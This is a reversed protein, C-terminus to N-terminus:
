GFTNAYLLVLMRFRTGKEERHITGIMLDKGGLTGHRGAELSSGVRHLQGKGSGQSRARITEKGSIIRGWSVGARELAWSWANDV